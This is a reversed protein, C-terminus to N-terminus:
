DPRRQRFTKVPAHGSRSGHAYKDASLGSNLGTAVCIDFVFDSIVLGVWVDNVTSEFVV